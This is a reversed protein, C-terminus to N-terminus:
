TLTRGAGVARVRRKSMAHVQWDERRERGHQSPEHTLKGRLAIVEILRLPVAKAADGEAAAALDVQAAAVTARERTVERLGHAAKPLDRGVAQPHVTLEDHRHAASEVEARQHRPQM